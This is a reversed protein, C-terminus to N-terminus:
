MLLYCGFCCFWELGIRGLWARKKDWIRMLKTELVGQPGSDVQGIPSITMGKGTARDSQISAAGASSVGENRNLAERKGPRCEGAKRADKWPGKM